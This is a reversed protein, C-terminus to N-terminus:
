CSPYEVVDDPSFSLAVVDVADPVSVTMDIFWRFNKEDDINDDVDLLHFPMMMM